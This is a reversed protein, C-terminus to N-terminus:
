WDLNGAIATLVNAAGFACLCFRLMRGRGIKDALRGLLPASLMYSASFITMSLGASALPIAYDAAILPLLPSVVFLDSGVVFMTLWSIGLKRCSSTPIKPNLGFSEM